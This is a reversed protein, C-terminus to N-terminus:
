VWFFIFAIMGILQSFLGNSDAGLAVIFFQFIMLFLFLAFGAGFSLLFDQLFRKVRPGEGM